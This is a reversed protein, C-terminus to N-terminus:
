FIPIINIIGYHKCLVSKTLLSAYFSYPHLLSEQKRLPSRRSWVYGRWSFPQSESWVPTLIVDSRLMKSIDSTILMNTKRVKNNRPMAPLYKVALHLYTTHSIMTILSHTGRFTKGIVGINLKVSGASILSFTDELSLSFSHREGSFEGTKFSFSTSTSIWATASM